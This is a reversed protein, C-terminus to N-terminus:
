SPKLSKLAKTDIAVFFLKIVDVLSTQRYRRLQGPQRRFHQPLQSPLPIPSPSGSREVRLLPQEAAGEPLGTGGRERRGRALGVQLQGIRFLKMKVSFTRFIQFQSEFIRTPSHKLSNSQHLVSKLAHKPNRFKVIKLM